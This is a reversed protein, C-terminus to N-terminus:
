GNCQFTQPTVRPPAIRQQGAPIFRWGQWTGCLPHSVSAGIQAYHWGSADTAIFYAWTGSGLSPTHRCSEVKSNPFGNIRCVFGEPYDSTGAVTNRTASFLNWGSDAGSDGYKVACQSSTPRQSQSGYDIVLTVGEDSCADQSIAKESVAGLNPWFSQVGLAKTVEPVAASIAALLILGILTYRMLNRNM